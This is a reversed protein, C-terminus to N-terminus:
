TLPAVRTALASRPFVQHPGRRAVVGRLGAQRIADGEVLELHIQALCRSKDLRAVSGSGIWPPPAQLELEVLVDTGGTRQARPTTHPLPSPRDGEPGMVRRQLGRSRALLGFVEFFPVALM